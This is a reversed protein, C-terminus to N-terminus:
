KAGLAQGSSLQGPPAWGRYADGVTGRLPM